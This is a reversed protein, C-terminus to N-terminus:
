LSYLETLYDTIRDYEENKALTHLFRFDTGNSFQENNHPHMLVIKVEQDMMFTNLFRKLDKIYSPTLMNYRHERNMKM